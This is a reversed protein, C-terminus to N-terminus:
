ASAMLPLASTSNSQSVGIAWNLMFDMDTNKFRLNYKQRKLIAENEKM